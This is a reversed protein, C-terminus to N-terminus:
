GKKIWADVYKQDLRLALEFSRIADEFKENSMSNIGKNYLDYKQLDVPNANNEEPISGEPAGSSQRKSKRGLFIGMFLNRKISSLYIQISPSDCSIAISGVHLQNSIALIM